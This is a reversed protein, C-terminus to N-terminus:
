VLPQPQPFSPLTPSWRDPRASGDPTADVLLEVTTDIVRDIFDILAGMIKKFTKWFKGFWAPAVDGGPATRSSGLTAGTAGGAEQTATARAEAPATSLTSAGAAVVTLLAVFLASKLAHFRSM